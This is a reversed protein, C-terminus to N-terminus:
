KKATKKEIADMRQLLQTIVKDKEILYLSLEEVQKVLKKNMEGLSIGETEVEKASPMDPLHKYAKIYYELEPLTRIKYDNEFVFDPWNAVEVKIEKSRITGNVALKDAPNSIGIGVNGNYLWSMALQDPIDSQNNYSNIYLELKSGWFSPGGHGVRFEASESYSNGPTGSRSLKFVSQTPAVVGAPKSDASLNVHLPVLPSTVGVGANGTSNLTNQAMIAQASLLFIALLSKLKM